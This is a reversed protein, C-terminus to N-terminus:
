IWRGTRAMVAGVCAQVSEDSRVDLPLMEVGEMTQAPQPNRSTGFVRLGQHALRKAIAAGIGASAGTVLAVREKNL